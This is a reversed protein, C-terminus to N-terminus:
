MKIFRIKCPWSCKKTAAYFPRTQNVTVIQRSVEPIILLKTDYHRQLVFGAGTVSGQYASYYRPLTIFALSCQFISQGCFCGWFRWFYFHSSCLELVIIQINVILYMHSYVSVMIDRKNVGEMM